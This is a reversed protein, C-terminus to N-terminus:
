GQQRLWDATRRLGEDIDVSPSYGIRERALSIDALSHQVDGPRRPAYEPKLDTGLIRNLREVLENLDIRSGCAVNMAEGGFVGDARAARLNADVVNDIYTFDRSQAGDGFITPRKGALLLRIFKPIVAAYDSFPDQRPGFVNFYRLSVTEIEYCTSFAAAYHEQLLKAVAYPSLPNPKMTEVKPLVESDGYASSSAALVVRRVGRDRAALLVRLTADACSRNTALPDTVSRPVSPIAAQHLVYAAGDLAADAVGAEALDGEIFEFRDLVEGINERRGTSFDDVGRVRCGEDLLRRVINSGIFGAAGTVVYLDNKHDM